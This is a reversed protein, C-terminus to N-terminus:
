YLPLVSINVLPTSVPCNSGSIVVPTGAPGSLPSLPDLSIANTIVTLTSTDFVTYPTTHLCAYLYHPGPTVNSNDDFKTPITFTASITGTASTMPTAVTKIKTVSTIPQALSVVQSSFYLIVYVPSTINATPPLSVGTVSITAGVIGQTPSLTIYPAAMAPTAPITAILLALILTIGLIRFIKLHKM